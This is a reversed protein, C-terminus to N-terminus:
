PSICEFTNLNVVTTKDCSIRGAQLEVISYEDYMTRSAELSNVFLYFHVNVNKRLSNHM